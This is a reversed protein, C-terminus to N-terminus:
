TAAGMRVPIELIPAAVDGTHVRIVGAGAPLPAHVRLVLRFERGPSIPVVEGALGPPLELGAIALPEARVNTLTVAPPAGATAPNPLELEAPFALVGAYGVGSVPMTAAGIRLVGRFPGAATPAFRIRYAARGDARPPRAEVTLAPDGASPATTSAIERVAAAGVPVYGFYLAGPEAVPPAAAFAVRLPAEPTAPDSTILRSTRTVAGGANAARCHLAITAREGPALADPLVSALTCGCDLVVGHLVLPRGGGNALEYRVLVAAGSGGSSVSRPDDVAPAAPLATVALRPPSATGCAGALVLVILSAEARRV